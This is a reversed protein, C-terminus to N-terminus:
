LDRRRLFGGQWHTARALGPLAEDFMPQPPDELEFEPHSRLFDRAAAAPNDGQWGAEGRPVDHLIEMVGDAVLVYSGPTVLPAYADLEARVHARSHAADLIVLVADGDRVLQHVQRVVGSSVSDGEVLTIMNALPHAEIATRNHPRIEIDIGVVRGPLGLSHMISATLVLSGGHAIGTEIVLTPRVRTLVEQVLVIDDPLQIIPRGLWTFRYPYKANWGLKVWLETLLAFGRTSYLDIESITGSEDTLTLTSTDTDIQLRM